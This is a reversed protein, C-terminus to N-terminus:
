LPSNHAISHMVLLLQPHITTLDLLLPYWSSVENQVVSPEIMKRHVEPSVSMMIIAILRM